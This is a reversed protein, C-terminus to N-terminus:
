RSRSCTGRASWCSPWAARRASACRWRRRASSLRPRARTPRRRSRGAPPPAPSRRRRFPRHRPRRGTGGAPGPRASGGLGSGDAAPVVAPAPAPRTVPAPAAAAGPAAAAEPAEPEKGFLGPRAGEVRPVEQTGVRLSRFDSEVLKPARVVRPTISIVVESDKFQRKHTGFLKGLIPISDMGLVGAADVTENSQVLGGILAAEGDRLRLVGTVNRTLFTPVFIPNKESGVNQNGGLISFEAALELTIDGSAAVRPTLSLNVGVNKYQFSTAPIYLGAEPPARRGVTLEHRTDPVEEGIKLEAKKGEAARLRPSALIRARQTTRRHVQGPDDLPPQGGLGGPQAVVPPLARINLVGGAM